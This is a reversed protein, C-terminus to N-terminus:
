VGALLRPSYLGIPRNLTTIGVKNLVDENVVATEQDSVEQFNVEGLFLVATLVRYLSDIEPESIGILKLAETTISFRDPDTIGEIISTRTDGSSTYVFQASSRDMEFKMRQMHSVSMLQYFIHYTREGPSLSIVRTKELLYHQCRSGTLEVM